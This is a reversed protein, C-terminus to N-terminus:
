KLYVSYHSLSDERLALPTSLSILQKHSPAEYTYANYIAQMTM